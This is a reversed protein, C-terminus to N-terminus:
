IWKKRRFYVLMVVAVAAMAGLVVFYASPHKLEPMYDFNMGYIGAVFTLPIFITAIITLVKMVENMRNSVSSLYIDLLGSAIDRFLEITDIVQITHDYLDRLYIDTSERILRSEARQLGSIVERLPWVARRLFIADRKILHIERATNSSPDQVAKEELLELKEGLAELIVFYNDVVADALSYALYDTGMRRVRGKAKRLRERVPEFVDGPREQFSIVFNDSLIISVQEAVMDGTKSDYMLMKLVLFMHKEFDEYKPRQGTNLIDEQVLPHVEFHDGIQKIVEQQSIGDINIWTITDTHKFDFCEKVDKVVREQYQGEDYDIVTILSREMTKEGVHILEGPVRGITKSLGTRFKIM